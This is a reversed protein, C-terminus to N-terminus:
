NSEQVIHEYTREPSPTHPSNSNGRRMIPPFNIGRVGDLLGTALGRTFGVGTAGLGTVTTGIANGTLLRDYAMRQTQEVIQTQAHYVAQRNLVSRLDEYQTLCRGCVRLNEVTM